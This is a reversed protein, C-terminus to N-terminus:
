RNSDELDQERPKRGQGVSVRPRTAIDHALSLDGRATRRDSGVTSQPRTNSPEVCILTYRQSASRAPSPDLDGLIPTRVRGMRFVEVHVVSGEACRVQRREAAQVLETEDHDPLMQLRVPRHELAAHDRAIVVREASLAPGLARRTPRHRPPQRVFREPPPRRRQQDPHAAVAALAAPPHPPLVGRRSRIRPRLQRARRHAPGQDPDHNLVQCHRPHGLGERDRPVGGVGSDQGFTPPHQDVVLGAEVADGDDSDVLVHPPVGAAALLVDGHDDVQGRDAVAGSGGPQEVNSSM